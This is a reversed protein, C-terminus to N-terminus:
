IGFDNVFFNIIKPIPHLVDDKSSVSVKEADNRLFFNDREPQLDIFLKCVKSFITFPQM